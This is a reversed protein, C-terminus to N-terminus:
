LQEADRHGDPRRPQKCELKSCEITLKSHINKLRHIEDFIICTWKIQEIQERNTRLMEYSMLLVDARRSVISHLARRRESGQFSTVRLTSWKKIEAEWQLIVSAPLVILAVRRSRDPTLLYGPARREDGVRLVASLFAISQITKGMGMDDGLIAGSDETFCRKYLFEVGEIQYKDCAVRL